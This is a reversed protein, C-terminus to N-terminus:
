SRTGLKFRREAYAESALELALREAMEPTLIIMTPGNDRGRGDDVAITIFADAGGATDDTMQKPVSDILVPHGRWDTVPKMQGCEVCRHPNTGNTTTTM